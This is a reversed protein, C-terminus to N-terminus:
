KGMTVPLLLILEFHEELDTRMLLLHFFFVCLMRSILKVKVIFM